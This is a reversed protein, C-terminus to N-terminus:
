IDLPRANYLATTVIGDVGSEAYALLNDETVGGAALLIRGVSLVSLLGDQPFLVSLRLDGDWHVRGEDREELRMVLRFLTTEGIGSLGVVGVIGRWPIRLHLGRLARREGYCKGIVSNM